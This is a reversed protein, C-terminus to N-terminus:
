FPGALLVLLFFLEPDLRLRLLKLARQKQTKVTNISIGLKDAIEQNKMGDLYGMKSILQCSEPLTEIVEYIRAVVESHIISRIVSPEEMDDATQLEAYSDVVRQHRLYNLSINRVTTYLFSKIATKNSSINEQFDWYKVFADQVIDEAAATENVIQASFHVLRSYYEDFLQKLDPKEMGPRQEEDCYETLYNNM